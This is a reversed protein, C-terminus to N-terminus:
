RAVEETVDTWGTLDDSDEPAWGSICPETRFGFAIPTGSPTTEVYRVHFEIRCGHHERAYTRGPQFFAPETAEPSDQKSSEAWLRLLLAAHRIGDCFIARSAHKAREDLLRAADARRARAVAEAEVQNLLEEFRVRHGPNVPAYSNILADRDSM